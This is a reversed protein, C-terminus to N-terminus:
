QTQITSLEIGLLTTEPYIKKGRQTQCKKGGFIEGMKFWSIVTVAVGLVQTLFGSVKQLCIQSECM